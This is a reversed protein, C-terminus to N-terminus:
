RTAEKNFMNKENGVKIKTEQLQRNLRQRHSRSFLVAETKSTSMVMGDLHRLVWRDLM